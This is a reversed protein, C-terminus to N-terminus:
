VGARGHLAGLSRSRRFRQRQGAHRTGPRAADHPRRGGDFGGLHRDIGGRVAAQADASAAAALCQFRPHRLRRPNAPDIGTRTAIEPLLSGLMDAARRMPPFLRRWGMEDVLTSFDRAHPNWLDTHCGLSTVESAAVGTLRMTWYQPYTLIAPGRRLRRLVATAALVAARRSQAWGATRPSGTESFPPRVRTMPTACKTRATSNTTSCRCRSNARSCRGAGSDRWTHHGFDCRHPARAGCHLWGTSSSHGSRMSMTIRTPGTAAFGTPSAHAAVLERRTDLDVLAVKANTKGIDIVAVHRIASTMEHPVRNGPARGGARQRAKTEMIDAMHAWWRQMVPHNPLDAM